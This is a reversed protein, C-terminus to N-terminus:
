KKILDLTGYIIGDPKKELNGKVPTIGNGESKALAQAFFEVLKGLTNAVEQDSEGTRPKGLSISIKNNGEPMTEWITPKKTESMHCEM